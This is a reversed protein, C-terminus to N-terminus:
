ISEMCMLAIACSEPSSSLASLCFAAWPVFVLNTTGCRSALPSVRVISTCVEGIRAAAGPFFNRWAGASVSRLLRLPPVTRPMRWTEVRECFDRLGAPDTLGGHPVLSFLIVRAGRSVERILHFDRLRVGCDPPYPLGFTVWLVKM